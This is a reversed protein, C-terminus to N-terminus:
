IMDSQSVISSFWMQWFGVMWSSSTMKNSAVSEFSKRDCKLTEVPKKFFMHLRKLAVASVRINVPTKKDFRSATPPKSVQERDNKDGFVNNM